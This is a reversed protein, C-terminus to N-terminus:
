ATRKWVYVSLFPPLISFANGSGLNGTHLKASTASGAYFTGIKGGGGTYVSSGVVGAVLDQGGYTYHIDYDQAPLEAKQLTHTADGGTNGAAQSAGSSSSDTAALLFKGTIREWTGGFLTAPSTGSVSMYISGVPYILNVIQEDTHGSKLKTGNEYFGGGSGVEMRGNAGAIFKGGSGTYYKGNDPLEVSSHDRVTPTTGIGVNTGDSSRKVVVNRAAGALLYTKYIWGSLKDKARVQLTYASNANLSGGMVPTFGANYSKINTWNSGDLSCELGQLANGSPTSSVAATAKLKYYSGGDTESGESNCRYASNITLVPASYPVVGTVSVTNKGELGYTGRNDRATVTFNTDGAIAGSTGIYTGPNNQDETMSVSEGGPFSLVVSRISSLTPQTVEATVKVCSKGAIYDSYSSAESPQVLETTPTGVVPKMDEGATLKFSDTMAGSPAGTVSVYIWMYDAQTVGATDFWEKPCLKTLTGTSFTETALVTGSSTGHRFTATLNIGSGNRVTLIENGGSSVSSSSLELSLAAAESTWTAQTPQSLGSADTAYVRGNSSSYNAGIWFYLETVGTLNLGTFTFTHALGNADIYTSDSLHEVYGSPPEAVSGTPDSTYLYCHFTVSTGADAAFTNKFTVNTITAGASLSVPVKYIVYCNRLALVGLSSDGTVKSWAYINGAVINKKFSALAM